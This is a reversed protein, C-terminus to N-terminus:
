ALFFDFLEMQSAVGRIRAIMESNHVLKAAEEWLEQLVSYNSIISKMSDAKVTWRTPCLVRIGPSGLSIEEKLKQFLNDRRPSDIILKTIELTTDLARKMTASNKMTDSVALNLSHGYCHTYFATPQEAQLITAVGSRCGSMNSAGDYCQGRMKGISINLRLMCDKVVRVLSNSEINPVEYLGIFEEHANLQNDVWRFVIVVQYIGYM